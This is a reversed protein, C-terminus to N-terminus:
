YPLKASTTTWTRKIGSEAARAMRQFAVRVRSNSKALNNQERAFPESFVITFTKNSIETALEPLIILVNGPSKDLLVSYSAPAWVLKTTCVSSPVRQCHTPPYCIQPCLERYSQAASTRQAFCDVRDVM